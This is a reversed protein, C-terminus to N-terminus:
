GYEGDCFEGGGWFVADFEAHVRERAVEYGRLLQKDTLYTLPRILAPDASM